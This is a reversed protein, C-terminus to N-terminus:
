AKATKRWRWLGLGVLGSGLLLATGPEPIPAPNAATVDIGRVSYDDNFNSVAGQSTRATFAIVTGTRSAISFGGFNAVQNNGTGPIDGQAFVSGDIFIRADDNRGVRAFTASNLIVAQDFTLILFEDFFRGDVQNDPSGGFGDIGLGLSDQTVNRAVTSGFPFARDTATVTLGIGGQSFNFSLADPGNGTLDFPVAQASTAYFAVSLILCGTMFLIRKM